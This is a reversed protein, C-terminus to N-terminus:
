RDDNGGDSHHLQGDNNAHTKREIGTTSTRGRLDLISETHGAVRSTLFSDYVNMLSALSSEPPSKRDIM